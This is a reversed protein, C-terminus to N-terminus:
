GAARRLRPVSVSQRHGRSVDAGDAPQVLFEVDPRRGPQRQHGSRLRADHPADRDPRDVSHPLRRRGARGQAGHFQPRWRDLPLARRQARLGRRREQPRGHHRFFVLQPQHDAFREVRAAVNSGADDSRYLGGAGGAADILAYVRKGGPAVAVGSRGWQTEPLGHGAIQTWHDGGDTTRFLGSGPGELPAYPAGCRVGRTGCPPTSPARIRRISRWTSPAPRPEAISCKRGPAAAMPPASSAAIPIRGTCMASRPSTSWTPIGRTWGSARSRGRTACASTADVDKRRRDIQLRRRRLRDALPHRGRGYGRLDREPESPAVAIAGISAITSGTSSRRWTLGANTTKWVGGGVSGFYFTTSDGAVGSVAAM